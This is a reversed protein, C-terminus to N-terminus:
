LTDCILFLNLTVIEAVQSSMNVITQPDSLGKRVQNVLNLIELVWFTWLPFPFSIFDASM